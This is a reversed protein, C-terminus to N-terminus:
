KSLKRVNIYLIISAIVDIVFFFHCIALINYTKKTTLNNKKIIRISSLGFSSTTVLLFYDLVFAIGIVIPYFIIGIGTMSLLMGGTFVFLLVTIYVPIMLIKLLMNTLALSKYNEKEVCASIITIVNIAITIILILLLTVSSIQDDVNDSYIIFLLLYSWVVLLIPAIKNLIKM